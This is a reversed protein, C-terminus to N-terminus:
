HKERSLQEQLQRALTQTQRESEQSVLLAKQVEKIEWQLQVIEAVLQQQKRQHPGFIAAIVAACVLFLVVAAGTALHARQKWLAALEFEQRTSM